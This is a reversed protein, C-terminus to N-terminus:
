SGIASLLREKLVAKLGKTDLGRETLSKRLEVVTMKSVQKETLEPKAQAELDKVRQKVSVTAQPSKSVKAKAEGKAIGLKAELVERGADTCNYKDLVYQLTRRECETVGTGDQADEWLQEADEKSIRGDGQGTTKSDAFELLGKDYKVGDIQKYYSGKEASKATAQEAKKKATPWM